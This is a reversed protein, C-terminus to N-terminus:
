KKETESTGFNFVAFYMTDGDTLWYAEACRQGASVEYPRFMRGLKAVAAIDANGFMKLIREHKEPISLM